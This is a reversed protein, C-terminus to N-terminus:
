FYAFHFAICYKFPVQWLFIPLFKADETNVPKRLKAHRMSQGSFYVQAKMAMYSTSLAYVDLDEGHVRQNQKRLQPLWHSSIEQMDVGLGLQQLSGLGEVHSLNPCGHACMDTVRPLNSILELSTCNQILLVSLLPFDELAKLNNTGILRLEKLSAAVEGLQRPLARLKPCGDLKLLVLRPLLQLMASHADVEPDEFFSWEEWNPM